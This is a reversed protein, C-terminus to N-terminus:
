RTSSARTMPARLGFRVYALADPSVVEAPSMPNSLPRYWLEALGRYKAPEGHQDPPAIRLDYGHVGVRRALETDEVYTWPDISENWADATERLYAALSPKNYTEAM